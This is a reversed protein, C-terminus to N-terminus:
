FTITEFVVPYNLGAPSQVAAEHLLWSQQLYLGIQLSHRFIM